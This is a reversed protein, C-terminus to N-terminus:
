TSKARLARKSESHSCLTADVGIRGAPLIQDLVDAKSQIIPGLRSGTHVSILLTDVSAGGLLAM